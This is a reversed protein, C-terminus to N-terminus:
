KADKQLKRGAATNSTTGTPGTTPVSVTTPDVAYPNPSCHGRNGALVSPLCEEVSRYQCDSAEAGEGIETVACWPADGSANSAPTDFMSGIALGAAIIAIKTAPRM